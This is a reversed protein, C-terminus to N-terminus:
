LLGPPLKANPTTKHFFNYGATLHLQKVMAGNMIHM